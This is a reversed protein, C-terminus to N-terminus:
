IRHAKLIVSVPINFEYKRLGQTSDESLTVDIGGNTIFTPLGFIFSARSNPAIEMEPCPSSILADAKRERWVLYKWTYSVKEFLPKQLKLFTHTDNKIWIKIYTKKEHLIIQPVMVVVGDEMHGLDWYQQGLKNLIDEIQSDTLSSSTALELVEKEQRPSANTIPIGKVEVFCQLSGDWKWHAIADSSPFVVAVCTYKGNEGYRITLTSKPSDLSIARIRVNPGDTVMIYEKKNLESANFVTEPFTLVTERDHLVALDNSGFGLSFGAFILLFSLIFSRKNM